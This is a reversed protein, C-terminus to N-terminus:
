RKLETGLRNRNKGKKGTSRPIVESPRPSATLIAFHRGGDDQTREVGFVDV